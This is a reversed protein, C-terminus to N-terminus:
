DDLRGVDREQIAFPSQADVYALGPGVLELLVDVHVHEDDHQLACVPM